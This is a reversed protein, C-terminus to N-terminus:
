AVHGLVTKLRSKYTENGYSSSYLSQAHRVLSAQLEPHNLISLIGEAFSKPDGGALVAEKGSLIQTHTQLDTAVIPKGSALYEYIKLPTNNGHLRPSVLLTAKRIFCKVTNPHLNGTFIIHKEVKLKEAHERMQVVQKPSGGALIFIVRPEKLVVERVCELLMPIGQYYEFTGSYLIIMRDKFKDWDILDDTITDGNDALAVENCLSNEILISPTKIKLNIVSEQLEPCITIVASALRISTKELFSFTGVLIKNKSYGFNRLQQPLSSHMDYLIKIRWFFLRYILCFFIAEEHVHLFDYKRTLLFWFSKFFLFFDLFIKPVSPGIKITKIFPVSIIRHIALNPLNVDRGINYTLLDVQHGLEILSRIRYYVSFPTGRPTFFPQPAIMLIKM